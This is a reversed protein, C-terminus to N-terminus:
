AVAQREIASALQQLTLSVNVNEDVYTEACRIAEITSCAQELSNPHDLDPMKRRVHEAAIRFYLTLGERTAQDKSALKDRELQKVAYAEAAQKFWAPLDDAGRGDLAADIRGALEVAAAIVGDEIWRLAMGLSGASLRAAEAAQEADIGRAKLERQVLSEPLSAFRVLQCRSRITPLLAGPQDTLLIILTRGAPEEVTKLMANQASPNMLEAQEIVFVKGRGLVAKRGAPEVLEPVIVNISLDIGKSKGTKDYYRILEKIIVHYDPHNGSELAQCSGCKGCAAEGRPKECLFLAALAGATTGKGVGAPGAFVMGHPLRDSAYARRLIDLAADQGFIDKFGTVGAGM